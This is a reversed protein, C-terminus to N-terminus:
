RLLPARLAFRDGVCMVTAREGRVRADLTLASGVREALADLPLGVVARENLLLRALERPSTPAELRALLACAARLLASPTIPSTASPGQPASLPARDARHTQSMKSEARLFMLTRPPARHASAQRAKHASRRARQKVHFM